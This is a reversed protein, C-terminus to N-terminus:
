CYRRLTTIPKSENDLGLYMAIAEYLCSHAEFGAEQVPALHSGTPTYMFDDDWFPKPEQQQLQAQQILYLGQLVDTSVMPEQQPYWYPEVEERAM